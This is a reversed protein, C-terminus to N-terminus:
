CMSRMRDPYHGSCRRFWDVLEAHSFWPDFGGTRDFLDRRVIGGHTNFVVQALPDATSGRHRLWGDLYKDNRHM